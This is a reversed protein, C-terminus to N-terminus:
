EIETFSQLRVISRFGKKLSDRSLNGKAEDFWKFAQELEESMPSACERLLRQPRDLSQDEQLLQVIEQLEVLKEQSRLILLVQDEQLM